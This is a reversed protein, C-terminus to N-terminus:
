LSQLMRETVGAAAIDWASRAHRLKGTGARGERDGVLAPPYSRLPASGHGGPRVVVIDCTDESWCRVAGLVQATALLGRMNAIGLHPNPEIVDEVAVFLSLKRQRARVVLSDLVTLVERLYGASVEPADDNVVLEAVLLEQRQRAIVGTTKGGPDVGVILTEPSTVASAGTTPLTSGRAAASSRPPTM